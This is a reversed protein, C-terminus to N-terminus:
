KTEGDTPKPYNKAMFEYFNEAKDPIEVKVGIHDLWEAFCRVGRQWSLCNDQYENPDYKCNYHHLIGNGKCMTKALEEFSEYTRIM